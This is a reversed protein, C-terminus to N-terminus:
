PHTTTNEAQARWQKPTKGTWRKCARTFVSQEAYGLLLAIETLRLPTNRLYDLALSKRTDELLAQWGMGSAHLKRQLTRESMRLAHAIRVLSGQGKPLMRVLLAQVNRQFGDLQPLASHLVESQRHHLAQLEKSNHRLPMPLFHLPFDIYTEAAAFRVTCGFFHAFRKRQQASASFPFGVAHPAIPQALLRRMFTVLGAISVTDALEGMEHSQPWRIRVAKGVGEVQALNEGYFLSEYRQYATLAEGLTECGLVLYGLLGVHRPQILAGVELAFNGKNSALQQAEKLLLQWHLLPIKETPRLSDLQSRLVPVALGQSDLWDTLIHAWAGNIQIASAPLLM